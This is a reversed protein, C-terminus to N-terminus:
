VCAVKAVAVGTSLKRIGVLMEPAADNLELVGGLGSARGSGCVVNIGCAAGSTRCLPREKRKCQFM